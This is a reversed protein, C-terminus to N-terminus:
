EAYKEAIEEYKGSERIKMIENWIDEAFKPHEKVFKQSLVLYYQKKKIPLTVKVIDRFEQAHSKISFDGLTELTVVGGLRKKVLMRMLYKTLTGEHVDVGIKKLDDVISFGVNAGIEEDLNQFRTGDWQLPSDKLKYLFYTMSMLRKNPDVEGDKMPYVVVKAREPTFSFHFGGEVQNNAVWDFVRAGPVREFHIEVNLPKELSKLVELTIGPKQWDIDIGSGMVFPPNPDINCSFTIKKPAALVSTSFVLLLITLGVNKRLSM